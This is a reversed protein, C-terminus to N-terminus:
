HEELGQKHGRQLEPRLLQLGTHSRLRIIKGLRWSMKSGSIVFNQTAPKRVALRERFKAFV